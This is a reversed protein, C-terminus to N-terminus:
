TIFISGAEEGEIEKEESQNCSQWCRRSRSSGRKECDRM